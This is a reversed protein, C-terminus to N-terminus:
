RGTPDAAQVVVGPEDSKPGKPGIDVYRLRGDIAAPTVRMVTNGWPVAIEESGNERHWHGFVLFDLPTEVFLILQALIGMSPEYRHTFGISWRSAKISRRLRQLEAEETRLGDAVVYDKSDFALYGDPGFRFAYSVKGFYAEYNRGQRDHDGACVFTPAEIRNLLSVFSQFQKPDGDETLDGTVLVLDPAKANVADVIDAFIAGSSRPHRNSGIHTDTIHAVTYTDPFSEYVFVARFNTDETEGSRAVLSYTGPEVGTPIKCAAVFRGTVLETWVPEIPFEAKDSRLLLGAKSTTEAPFSEGRLVLAPMGDNPTTIIGLPGDLDRAHAIWPLVACTFVAAIRTANM